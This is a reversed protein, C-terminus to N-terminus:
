LIMPEEFVTNDFVIDALEKAQIDKLYLKQGPIYRKLYKENVLDKEEQTEKKKKDIESFSTM